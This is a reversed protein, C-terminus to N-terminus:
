SCIGIAWRPASRPRETRLYSLAAHPAPGAAVRTRLLHRVRCRVGPPKPKGDPKGRRAPRRPRSPRGGHHSPRDRRLHSPPGPLPGAPEVGAGARAGKPLARADPASPHAEAGGPPRVRGLTARPATLEGRARPRRGRDANFVTSL